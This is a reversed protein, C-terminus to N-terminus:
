PECLGEVCARDTDVCPHTGDCYARCRGSSDCGLGSDCEDSFSCTADLPRNNINIVCISDKCTEGTLCGEDLFQDCQPGADPPPVYADPSADSLAGDVLSNGDSREVGGDTDEVIAGDPRRIGAADGGVILSCGSLVVTLAFVFAFSRM